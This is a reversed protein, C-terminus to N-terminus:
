AKAARKPKMYVALGLAALGLLPLYLAYNFGGGASATVFTCFNNGATVNGALTPPGSLGNCDLNNGVNLTGSNDLDVWFDLNVDITLTAGAGITVTQADNVSGQITLSAGSGLHVSM